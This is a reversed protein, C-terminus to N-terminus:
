IVHLQSAAWYALGRVVSQTAYLSFAFCSAAVVLTAANRLEIHSRAEGKRDEDTLAPTFKGIEPIHVFDFTAPQGLGTKSEILIKWLFERTRQIRRRDWSQPLVYRYTYCMTGFFLCQGLVLLRYYLSIRRLHLADGLRNGVLWRTEAIIFDESLYAPPDNVLSTIINQALMRGTDTPEVETALLTEMVAKSKTATALHETPTGMYFAILRWLATLDDIEAPLMFIGQRPLADFILSSSFSCITGISDLDNIPVGWRAEDFYTPHSQALRRIRQRVAAHLLRVRLCANVGEGHPRMAELSRSTQLIFQATEYVRKRANKVSFGSTRTLTEVARVSGMGGVLSQYGMGILLPGSYRHFADMGREIQKWDVWEPVATMQKWLDRIQHSTDSEGLIAQKSGLDAAGEQIAEGHGDATNNALELSEQASVFEQLRAFLAGHGSSGLKTPGEPKEATQASDSGGAHKAPVEVPGPYDQLYQLLEDGKQDWSFKLEHRQHDSLHDKTWTIPVEWALTYDESPWIREKYYNFAFSAM